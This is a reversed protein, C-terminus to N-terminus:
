RILHYGEAETLLIKPNSPDEEIKRRLQCIHTQLTHSSVEPSYKWVETLLVDRGVPRDGALCLCKLLATEKETLSKTAKTTRNVLVKADPRFTYPGVTYVVVGSYSHARLQARIRAALVDLRFPKTVYDDAGADLGLIIDADTAAGTLIIIPSRVGTRRMLRCVERGDMDPLGVSLLVVDYPCDHSRTLAVTGSAAEDIAFQNYLRFHEALVGRLVGDDDVVLMKEAVTM